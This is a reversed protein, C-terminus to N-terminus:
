NSHQRYPIHMRECFCRVAGNTMDNDFTSLLKSTFRINTPAMSIRRKSDITTELLNDFGGQRFKVRANDFDRMDVGFRDVAEVGSIKEVLVNARTQIEYDLFGGYICDEFKEFKLAILTLLLIAQQGSFRLQHTSRGTAPFTISLSISNLEGSKNDFRINITDVLFWRGIYLYPKVLGSDKIHRYINSTERDSCEILRSALMEIESDSLKYEKQHSYLEKKIQVYQEVVDKWQESGFVQM